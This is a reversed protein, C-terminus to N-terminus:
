NLMSTDMTIFSQLSLGDSILRLQSKNRMAWIHVYKKIHNFNHIGLSVKVFLSRTNESTRELQSIDSYHKTSFKQM